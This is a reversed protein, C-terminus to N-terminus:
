DKTQTKNNTRYSINHLFAICLAIGMGTLVFTSTPRISKTFANLTKRGVKRVTKATENVRNKFDMVQTCLPEALKKIEVENLKKDDHLKIFTDKAQTKPEINKINEFEKLREAQATASIEKLKANFIEDKEQPTVPIAWKLSYGILAGTAASQIYSMKHSNNNTDKQIASVAM